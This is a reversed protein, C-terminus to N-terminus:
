TPDDRPESDWAVELMPSTRNKTREEEKEKGLKEKLAWGWTKWGMDAELARKVWSWEIVGHDSGTALDTSDPM